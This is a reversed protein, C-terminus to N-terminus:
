LDRETMKSKHSYALFVIFAGLVANGAAPAPFGLFGLILSTVLVAGVGLEFNAYSFCLGIIVCIAFAVLGLPNIGLDGFNSLGSSLGSLSSIESVPCPFSFAYVYGDDKTINMSVIYDTTSDADEWDGDFSDSGSDQYDVIVDHDVSYADYHWIALEWVGFTTNTLAWFDIETDSTREAGITEESVDPATIFSGSTLIIKYEITPDQALFLESHSGQDCIVRLTYSGWQAMWFYVEGTFELTRQEVIENIGGVMALCQLYPHSVGAGSLFDTVSVPYNYAAFLGSTIKLNFTDGEQDPSVDIFRQDISSGNVIKSWLIQTILTSSTLITTNISGGTFVGRWVDSNYNQVAIGIDINATTGDDWYPGKLTYTYTQARVPVALAALNVLVILCILLAASKRDM